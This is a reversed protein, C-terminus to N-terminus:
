ERISKERSARPSNRKDPKIGRQLSQLFDDVVGEEASELVVSGYGAATLNRALSPHKKWTALDWHRVDAFLDNLSPQVKKVLLIREDTRVLHYQFTLFVSTGGMVLGLVFGYFRRM